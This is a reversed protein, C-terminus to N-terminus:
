EAKAGKRSNCARCLVQLNDTTDQGGRSYPVIHDLTLDHASGCSRCTRDRSMVTQRVRSPVHRRGRRDLVQGYRTSRLTAVAADFENETLGLGAQRASEYTVKGSTGRYRGYFYVLQAQIPLCTFESSGWLDIREQRPGTIKVHHIPISM